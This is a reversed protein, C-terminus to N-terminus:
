QCLHSKDCVWCSGNRVIGSPCDVNSELEDEIPKAKVEDQEAESLINTAAALVAFQADLNDSEANEIVKQAVIDLSLTKEENPDYNPNTTYLIVISGFLAGAETYALCGASLSNCVQM